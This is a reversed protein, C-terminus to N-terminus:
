KTVERDLKFTGKLPRSVLSAPSYIELDYRMGNYKTMIETKTSRFLVIINPATDSLVIENDGSTLELYVTDGYENDRVQLKATYLSLDVVSNAIKYTVSVSTDAGQPIELNYTGVLPDNQLQSSM